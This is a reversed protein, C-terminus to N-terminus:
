EQTYISVGRVWGGVRGGGPETSNNDDITTGLATPLHPRDHRIQRNRELSLGLFLGDSSEGQEPLARACEIRKPITYLKVQQTLKKHKKPSPRHWVYHLFAFNFRCHKADEGTTSSYM